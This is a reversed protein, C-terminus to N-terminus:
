ERRTSRLVAWLLITSQIVPLLSRLLVDRWVLQKILETEPGAAALREQIPIMITPIAVWPILALIVAIWIIARPVNPLARIATIITLVVSPMGLLLALPVTRVASAEHFARFADAPVFAGM